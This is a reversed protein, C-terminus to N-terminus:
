RARGSGPAYPLSGHGFRDGVNPEVGFVDDVYRLIVLFLLRRAIVAIAAGAVPFRVVTGALVHVRAQGRGPRLAQVHELLALTISRLWFTM